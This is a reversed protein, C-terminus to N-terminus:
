WQEIRGNITSNDQPLIIGISRSAPISSYTSLEDNDDDDDDNDDEDDDDDDNIDDAPQYQVNRLLNAQEERTLETLLDNIYLMDETSFYEVLPRCWTTDEPIRVLILILYNNHQIPHTPTISPPTKLTISPLGPLPPTAHISVLQKLLDEWSLLPLVVTDNKN